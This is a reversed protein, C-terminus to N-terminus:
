SRRGATDTSTRWRIRMPTRRPCSVPGDQGAPERDRRRICRVHDPSGDMGDSRFVSNSHFGLLDQGMLAECLKM